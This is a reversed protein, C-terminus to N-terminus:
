MVQMKHTATLIPSLSIAMIISTHLTLVQERLPNVVGGGIRKISYLPNWVRKVSSIANCQYIISDYTCLLLDGTVFKSSWAPEVTMPQSKTFMRGNYQVM